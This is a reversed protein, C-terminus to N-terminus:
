CKIDNQERAGTANLCACHSVEVANLISTTSGQVLINYIFSKVIMKRTFNFNYLM